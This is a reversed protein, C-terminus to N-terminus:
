FANAAVGGAVDINAPTESQIKAMYGILGRSGMSFGHAIRRM